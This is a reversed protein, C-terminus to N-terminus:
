KKETSFHKACINVFNEILVFGLNGSVEPHFQVGFMPKEIHMMAENVCADSCAILKFDKPVSISECHDEMMEFETPLRDFLPSDEITEITQWDRDEKQRSAFSGHIIGLIQHGFCIGLIPFSVDKLFQIQDMYTKMNVETVLIPAGSIIMGQIGECAEKKLDFFGITKYDVYLDVAEEIYPTKKSGCDVILIM